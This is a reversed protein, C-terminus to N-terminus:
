YARRQRDFSQHREKDGRYDDCWLIPKRTCAPHTSLITATRSACSARRRSSPKRAWARSRLLAKRTRFPGNADRHSVINQAVWEGLGVRARAAAGLRHQSRRRRRERLGGRGRRTLSLAQARCSRAPVPRRRHIESRDERAGGASGAAAARHLRRRSHVCRSRAAGPECLGLRFLSLRRSGVGHDQHAHLDPHKAVLEAALKDTERSATGNGIAILEVQSRPLAARPDRAVPGMPAQSMRTSPIPRWSREPRM